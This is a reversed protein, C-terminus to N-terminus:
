IKTSLKLISKKVPPHEKKESNEKEEKLPELKKDSKIGSNVSLVNSFNKQSPYPLITGQNNNM